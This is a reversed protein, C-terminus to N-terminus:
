CVNSTAESHYNGLHRYHSEWAQKQDHHPDLGSSPLALHTLCETTGLHVSLGLCRLEQASSNYSSYDDGAAAGPGMLHSRSAGLAQSHSLAKPQSYEGQGDKANSKVVFRGGPSPNVQLHRRAISTGWVRHDLAVVPRGKGRITSGAGLFRPRQPPVMREGHLQLEWEMAHEVWCGNASPKLRRQGDLDCKMETGGTHSGRPGAWFKQKVM